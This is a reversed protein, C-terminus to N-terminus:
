YDGLIESQVEEEIPDTHVRDCETFTEQTKYKTDCTAAARALEFGSLTQADDLLNNKETPSFAFTVFAVAIATVSLFVKKM